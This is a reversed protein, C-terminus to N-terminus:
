KESTVIDEIWVLAKALGLSPVAFLAVYRLDEKSLNEDLARRCHSHVGGERAWRPSNSWACLEAISHGPKPMPLALNSALRGFSRAAGSPLTEAEDRV